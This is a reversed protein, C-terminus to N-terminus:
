RGRRRAMARVPLWVVAVLFGLTARYLAAAGRAWHLADIAAARRAVHGAWTWPRWWAVTRERGREDIAMARCGLLLAVVRLPQLRDGGHWAAISLDFREARLARVFALKGGAPKDRRCEVSPAAAMLAGRTEDNAFVVLAADPWRATVARTLEVAADRDTTAFLAIKM